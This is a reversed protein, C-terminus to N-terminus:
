TIPLESLLDRRQCKSLNFIDFFYVYDLGNCVIRTPKNEIKKKSSYQATNFICPTGFFPHRLNM